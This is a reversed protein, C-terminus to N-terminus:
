GAEFVEVRGHVREITLERGDHVLKGHEDTAAHDVYGADTDVEVVHRVRVGDVTIAPLKFKRRWDNPGSDATLKM